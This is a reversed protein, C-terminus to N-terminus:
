TELRGKANGHQASKESEHSSHNSLRVDDFLSERGVEKTESKATKLRKEM